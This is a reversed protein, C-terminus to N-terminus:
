VTIKRARADIRCSSTVKHNVIVTAEAHLALTPCVHWPVGLLEDGVALREAGPSEFVLHEESHSIFQADPFDPFVVRPHPMESAVAKHGLDICVRNEGPKSVVRTLLVAANSFDLDPLKAAYSADWLATTGPSCEVDRRAAHIPFTPTGGAVIKPVPLGEALLKDRLEWVPAFAEACAKARAGIDTQNVHGDYVHLGGAILPSAKALKRYLVIAGPGPSIGTRHQGVDIDLLVELREGAKVMADVVSADDVITSFKTQTYKKQLALLRGLNPGVPQLAVLVDPAGAEACMEAEAITACKYRTIGLALQRQVLFALKHTKVHPRLRAPDGVIKVMHALNKQIPELGLLLAPSPVQSLDVGRAWAIDLSM